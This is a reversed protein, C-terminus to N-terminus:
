CCSFVGIQTMEAGDIRLRDFVIGDPRATALLTLGTNANGYLTVDRYHYQNKYAGHLIGTKSYYATFGDIDQKRDDNQWVLIGLM